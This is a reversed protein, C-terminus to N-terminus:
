AHFDISGVAAVCPQNFAMVALHEPHQQYRRLAEVDAFRMILLLDWSRADQLVDRGIQLHGIGPVSHQLALMRRQFEAIHDATTGSQYKIFVYHQLM